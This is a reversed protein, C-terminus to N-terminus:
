IYKKVKDRITEAYVDLYILDKWNNLNICYNNFSNDINGSRILLVEMMYNLTIVRDM